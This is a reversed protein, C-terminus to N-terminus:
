SANLARDLQEAVREIDSTTLGPHVPLSLCRTTCDLAVPTDDRHVAPLDRYANHDWVLGPYYVGTDIGASLM